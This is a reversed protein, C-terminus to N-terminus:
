IRGQMWIALVHEPKQKLEEDRQFFIQNVDGFLNPYQEEIKDCFYNSAWDCLWYREHTRAYMWYANRMLRKLRKGSTAKKDSRAAFYLGVAWWLRDFWNLEVGACMKIHQVMGPMRAFWCDWRQSLTIPDCINKYFWWNKKGYWYVEYAAPRSVLQAARCFGVYDDHTQLSLNDKGRNILGPIVFSKNYVKNFHPRDREFDIEAYIDLADFYEGTYLIGNGDIEEAGVHHLMIPGKAFYPRSEAYFSRM